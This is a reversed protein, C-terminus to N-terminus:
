IRGSHATRDDDDVPKGNGRGHNNRAARHVHRRIRRIGCSVCTRGVRRAGIGISRDISRKGYDRSCRPDLSGCGFEGVGGKAQEFQV